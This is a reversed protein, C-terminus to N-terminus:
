GTEDIRAVAVGEVAQAQSIFRQAFCAQCYTCVFLRETGIWSQGIRSDTELLQMLRLM